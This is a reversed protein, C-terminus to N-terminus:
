QVLAYVLLFLSLSFTIFGTWDVRRAVPDRSDKVKTLCVVIAFLGLPLNLFFIWRWGIGSTIAGGVLPGVAVAGGLVAGYIGFATGRERGSFAAAILALSTAFMVAGGVGQAGRCLNLM